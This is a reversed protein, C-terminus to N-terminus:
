FYELIAFNRIITKRVLMIFLGRPSNRSYPINRYEAKLYFEPLRPAITFGPLNGAGQFLASFFFLIFNNKIDLEKM